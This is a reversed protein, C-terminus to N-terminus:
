NAINSTLEEAILVANLATGRRLNDAVAWISISRPARAHQQVRGVLIEDIGAGDLTSAPDDGERLEVGAARGLAARTDDANVDTSFTVTMSISIGHFTTAQLISLALPLERGLVSGIETAIIEEVAAADPSPYINFALQRDFVERPQSQLNLAAVTQAFLEDIGAQDRMSASQLMTASVGEIDGLTSLHGLLLALTVSAPHPSRIVGSEPMAHLNAGAVIVTGGPLGGTLDVVRADGASEAWQEDDAGSGCFFVLDVAEFSNKAAPQIVAAEDAIETLTGEQEGTTDILDIHSYLTGREHLISRLEKGVLTLPNVIAFRPLRGHM